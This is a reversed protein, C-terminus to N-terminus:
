TVVGRIFQIARKREMGSCFYFTKGDIIVKVPREEEELMWFFGNKVRENWWKKDKNEIVLFRGQTMETTEQNYEDHTM